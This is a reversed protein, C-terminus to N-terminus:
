SYIGLINMPLVERSTRNNLSQPKVTAPVPKIGLPLVLIRCGVHPLLFLYILYANAINFNNISLAVPIGVM